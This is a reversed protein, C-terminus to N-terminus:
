MYKYIYLAFLIGVLVMLNVRLTFGLTFGILFLDITVPHVVGIQYPKLFADKILGTPSFFSLAEGMFGGFLAGGMVFIFLMSHSKQLSGMKREQNLDISLAYEQYTM